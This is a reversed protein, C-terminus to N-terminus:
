RWRILADYDSTIRTPQRRYGDSRASRITAVLGAVALVTLFLILFTM